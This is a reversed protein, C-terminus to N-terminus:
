GGFHADLKARHRVVFPDDEAVFGRRAEVRVDASALATALLETAAVHTGPSASSGPASASASATTAAHKRCGLLALASLAASILPRSAGARRSQSKFVQSM